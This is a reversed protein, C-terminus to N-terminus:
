ARPRGDVRRVWAGLRPFADGLALHEALIAHFLEDDGEPLGFLGYKLFPFAACDAAGFDGLLFDRGALLGEFLPLSERMEEALRRLRTQRPRARSLEADLLNPARKWLGDFWRLFLDVEARRAEDRPFLPPDAELEELRRLIALSDAVVRGGDEELVPVLAQGSLRAVEGRDAPEVDIWEVELGKHGLALAVREVNTSYPIRWVRM